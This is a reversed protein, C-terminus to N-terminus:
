HQSSLPAYLGHRSIYESVSPDIMPHVTQGSALKHRIETSTIPLHQEGQMIWHDWRPDYDTHARLSSISDPERLAVIPEALRTVEGTQRWSSFQKLQDSGILLRMSVHPGLRERIARLTDVTYSPPPRLLEFDCITWPTQLGAQAALRLMALRHAPGAGPNISKHPSRAAPVLIILRSGTVEAARQAFYFHAVHPPDFSGGVIM